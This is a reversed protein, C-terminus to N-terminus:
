GKYRDSDIYALFEHISCFRVRGGPYYREYYDIESVTLKTMPPVVMWKIMEKSKVQPKMVRNHHCKLGVATKPRHLVLMIPLVNVHETITLTTNSKTTLKFIYVNSTDCVLLELYTNCLSRKRDEFGNRAM